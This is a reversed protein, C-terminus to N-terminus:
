FVQSDPLHADAVSCEDSTSTNTAAGDAHANNAAVIATTAAEAREPATASSTTHVRKRRTSRKSSTSDAALKDRQRKMEDHRNQLWKQIREKILDNTADKYYMRVAVAFCM